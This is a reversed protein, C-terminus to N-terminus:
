AVTPIQEQSASHEVATRGAVLAQIERAVVALCSLGKHDPGAVVELAAVTRCEMCFDAWGVLDMRDAPGVM